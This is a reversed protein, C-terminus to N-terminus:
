PYQQNLFHPGICWRVHGKSLPIFYLSITAYSVSEKPTLSDEIDNGKSRLVAYGKEAVIHLLKQM